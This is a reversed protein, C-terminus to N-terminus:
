RCSAEVSVNYDKKYRFPEVIIKFDKSTGKQIDEQLISMKQLPKLRYIYNKYKNADVRYIKATIKCSKFNRKSLNKIVGKVVIAESFKLRKQMTVTVSNKFLYNHMEIYGLTPGLFLSVISFLVFLLAAFLSKRLLIALIIFLVFLALSAGFLIYDYVILGNIFEQLQEKM